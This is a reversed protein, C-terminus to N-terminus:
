NRISPDKTARRAREPEGRDGKESRMLITMRPHFGFRRYFGFAEENGEAVGVSITACGKESLWTLAQEILASGVGHARYDSDIFISDIEGTGDGTGDASVTAVVYGIVAGSDEATGVFLHDDPLALFKEIRREFTNHSFHEKFNASKERHLRNLAEWLPRISGISDKAITAYTIV